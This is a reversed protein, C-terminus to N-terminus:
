YDDPDPNKRKRKRESRRRKNELRREKQARGPQTRIRRKPRKIGQRIIEALTKRAISKNRFQSRSEDTSVRLHGDETIHSSANKRLRTKESETLVETADLNWSLTIRSSTKNAHQGGPGSSRSATFTLEAAPIVRKRDIQIDDSMKKVRNSHM